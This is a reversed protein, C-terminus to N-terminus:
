ELRGLLEVRAGPGIGARRFAGQNVELAFRVRAQSIVSEENHPELHYIERITGDASISAISLPIHTNRMWFSRRADDGFVFLMGERDGLPATRHMLGLRMEDLTRAVEVFFDHGGIRLHVREPGRSCGACGALVVTVWLAVLSVGLRSAVRARPGSTGM